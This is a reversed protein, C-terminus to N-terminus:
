TYQLYDSGIRIQHEPFSIAGKNILLDFFRKNPGPKFAQKLPNEM